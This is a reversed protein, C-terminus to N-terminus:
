FAHLHLDASLQQGRKALDGTQTRVWRWRFDLALNKTPDFRIGSVLNTTTSRLGKLFTKSFPDNPRQGLQLNGGVNILEASESFFNHPTATSQSKTTSFRTCTHCQRGKM